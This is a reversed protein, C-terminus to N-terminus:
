TFTRKKETIHVMIKQQLPCIHFERFIYCKPPFLNPTIINKGKPKLLEHMLPDVANNGDMRYDTNKFVTQSMERSIKNKIIIDRTSLNLLIKKKKLVIIPGWPMLRATSLSSKVSQLFPSPLFWLVIKKKKKLKNYYERFVPKCQKMKRPM